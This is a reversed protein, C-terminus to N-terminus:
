LGSSAGSKKFSLLGSNNKSSSPIRADIVEYVIDILDLHEKIERPTKVDLEFSGDKKLVQSLVESAREVCRECITVGHNGELLVIVESEKQGCFSCERETKKAM